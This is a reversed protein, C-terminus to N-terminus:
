MVRLLDKMRAVEDPRLFIEHESDHGRFAAWGERIGHSIRLRWSQKYRRIGFCLKVPTLPNETNRFEIFCGSDSGFSGFFTGRNAQVISMVLPAFEEPIGADALQSYAECALEIAKEKSDTMTEISIM